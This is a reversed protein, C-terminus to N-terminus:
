MNKSVVAAKHATAEIVRSIIQAFDSQMLVEMGAATCGGPTSVKQALAAPSISEQKVMYAAGIVTQVALLTATKPDMGQSSAAKALADIFAYVFAPGSGSLATAVDFINGPVEATCGVAEFLHLLDKKCSDSVEKSFEFLTVGKGIALPTNPMIRVVPWNPVVQQIKEITWGLAMSIIPKPAVGNQVLEQLVASMQSPKVALFLYQAEQMVHVNDNSVRIGWESSLKQASEASRVSVFLNQKSLGAKFFGRIMSGGMEGAGIFGLKM